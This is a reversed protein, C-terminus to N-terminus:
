ILKRHQFVGVDFIIVAFHNGKGGPLNKGFFDFEPKFGLSTGISIRNPGVAEPLVPMSRSSIFEEFPRGISTTEASEM